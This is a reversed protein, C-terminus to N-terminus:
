QPSTFQSGPDRNCIEPTALELAQQMAELVFRLELTQDLEWSVVYRSHWDLVAVLYLWGGPLRIYTIDIGWVQNSRM